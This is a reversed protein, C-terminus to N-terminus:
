SIKQKAGILRLLAPHDATTIAPFTGLILDDLTQNPWNPSPFADPDRAFQIKYSEVGEEKRSTVQTWLTKAKECGDLNTGNWSNDLNRSPVHCLFFIDNPKSALALRFRLIRSSPLYRMAIDEDILHLTDRKQGKIPVNVFCLEPSWYKSEDPHLRVFDKAESISHHPLGTLLTEVGAITAPRKSKFKDLGDSGEPKPISIPETDISASCDTAIPSVAQAISSDDVSTAVKDGPRRRVVDNAPSSNPQGLGDDTQGKEASQINSQDDIEHM